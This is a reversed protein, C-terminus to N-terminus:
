KAAKRNAANTRYIEISWGNVTTFLEGQKSMALYFLDRLTSRETVKKRNNFLIAKKLSMAGLLGEVKLMEEKGLRSFQVLSRTQRVSQPGEGHTQGKLRSGTFFQHDKGLVKRIRELADAREKAEREKAPMKDKKKKAKAREISRASVGTAAAAEQSAKVIKKPPKPKTELESTVGEAGTAPVQAGSPARGGSRGADQREKARQEFIPLIHEAVYAAKEGPSMQLQRRKFNKSVVFALPDGQTKPDFLETRLKVDAKHCAKQRSRGDLIEGEFIIVPDRLGNEKIDATLEELEAASPEPVLLAFRHPKYKLTEIM